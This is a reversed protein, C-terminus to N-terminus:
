TTSTSTGDGRSTSGSGSARRAARGVSAPTSRRSSGTGTARQARAQEVVSAEDELHPRLELLAAAALGEEGAELERVELAETM